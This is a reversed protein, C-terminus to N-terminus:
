ADQQEFGDFEDEEENDDDISYDLYHKINTDFKIPNKQYYGFYNYKKSFDEYKFCFKKEKEDYFFHKIRIRRLWQVKDESSNFYIDDPSEQSTIFIRTYLNKKCGNKIHINQVRKDIFKILETVPVEKSRFDEIVCTKQEGRVGDWFNGDRSIIEYKGGLYKDIYDYVSRSKCVQSKGYIYEVILNKKYTTKTSLIEDEEANIKCVANYYKISLKDREERTMKKVEEITPNFNLSSHFDGIEDIINGDKMIYDRNTTPSANCTEIHSNCCKRLSIERTRNYQVYFHIHEHQTSPAIERCSILYLFYKLGILYDRVTEYFEVQNLTLQFHKCKFVKNVRFM